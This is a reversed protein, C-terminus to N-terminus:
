FGSWPGYTHMRMAHWISSAGSFPQKWKIWRITALSVRMWKLNFESEKEIKKKRDNVGEGERDMKMEIKGEGKQQGVANSATIMSIMTWMWVVCRKKATSMHFLRFRNRNAVSGCGGNANVSATTSKSRSFQKRKACSFPSFEYWELIFTLCSILFFVCIMYNELIKKHMRRRIRCPPMNSNFLVQILRITKTGHFPAFCMIIFILPRKKKEFVILRTRILWNFVHKKAFFHSCYLWDTWHKSMRAYSKHM